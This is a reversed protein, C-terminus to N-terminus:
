KNNWWYAVAEIVIAAWIAGVFVLGSQWVPM